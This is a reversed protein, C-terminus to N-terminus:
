CAMALTDSSIWLREEGYKEEHRAEREEELDALDEELDSFLDNTTM